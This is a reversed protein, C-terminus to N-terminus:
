RHRAPRAGPPPTTSAPAVGPHCSAPPTFPAAPPPAPAGGVRGIPLTAVRGVLDATADAVAELDAPDVVQLTDGDTHYEAYGVVPWVVPIGAADFWRADSRNLGGNAATATRGNVPLGDVGHAAFTTLFASALVGEESFVLARYSFLPLQGGAVDTPRASSADLNVDAVIDALHLPAMTM